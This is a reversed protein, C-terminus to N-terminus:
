MDIPLSAKEGPELEFFSRLERENLVSSYEDVMLGALANAQKPLNKPLTRRSFLQRLGYKLGLWLRKKEVRQAIEWLAERKHQPFAVGLRYDILLNLEERRIKADEERSPMSPAHRHLEIIRRDYEEDSLRKGYGLDDAM